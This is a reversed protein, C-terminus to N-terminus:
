QTENRTRGIFIRYCHSHLRWRILRGWYLKSSRSPWKYFLKFLLPGLISGQPVGSKVVKDTSRKNDVVVTQKRNTLYSKFWRISLGSCNYNLLKTLLIDHPVLDFAKSLDLFVTGVLKGENISKYWKNTLHTLATHCSHLRRFGSQSHTLLDNEEVYNSLADHM